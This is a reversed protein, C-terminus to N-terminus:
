GSKRRKRHILRHCKKCLTVGNNVDFRLLPYNSFSLIHHANINGGVKKCSVCCYKDREFVAIRWEKYKTSHRIVQNLPTIGGKWQPHIIGVMKGKRAKSWKRKTKESHKKGYFANGDGKRQKSMKKKTEKNAKTGLRIQRLHERAEPTWIREKNRKITLAINKKRPKQGKVAKKIKEIEEPSHKRGKNAKGIIQGACKKSCYKKQWKILAKSCNECFIDKADNLM